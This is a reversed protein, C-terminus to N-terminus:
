GALFRQVAARREAPSVVLGVEGDPLTATSDPQLIRTPPSGAVELSAFLGMLSFPGMDTKLAQPAAWAILPLRVFSSFSFLRQKMATFLQQQRMARTLDSEGPHCLNHSLRLTYGGNRFGGSILSLICVRTTFDVGGMANVLKPFNTFNVEVVHNIKIGLFSEVTKVALEAGGFAYAANIKYNGHGPIDVITDRPISLRASHGGGARILMLVDSRSPGSTSAGPEHSGKPRQDSGLVLINSASWLPFGSGSLAQEAQSSVGAAFLSSIVFLVISLGIWAAFAVAVWRLARRWTLKPRARPVEGRLRLERLAQLDALPDTSRARWPLRLAARYRRRSDREHPM